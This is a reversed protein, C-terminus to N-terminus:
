KRLNESWRDWRKARVIQLGAFGGIIGRVGRIGRQHCAYRLLYFHTIPGGCQLASYVGVGSLAIFVVAFLWFDLGEGALAERALAEPALTGVAIFALLFSFGCYLLMEVWVGVFRLRQAVTLSLLHDQVDGLNYATTIQVNTATQRYDQLIKPVSKFHIVLM